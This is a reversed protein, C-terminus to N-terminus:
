LIAVLRLKMVIFKDSCKHTTDLINEPTDVFSFVNIKKDFIM